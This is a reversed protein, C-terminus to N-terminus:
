KTISFTNPAIYCSLEDKKHLRLNVYFLGWYEFLKLEDQPVHITKDGVVVTFDPEPMVKGEPFLRVLERLCQMLQEESLESSKTTLSMDCVGKDKTLICYFEDWDIGLASLGHIFMLHRDNSYDSKPPNDKIHEDISYDYGSSKAVDIADKGSMYPKIGGINIGFQKRKEINQQEKQLKEKEAQKSEFYYDCYAGAFFILVVGLIGLIIKVILSKTIKM